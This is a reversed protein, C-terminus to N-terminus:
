PHRVHHCISRLGGASMTGSGASRRVTHYCECGMDKMGWKDCTLAGDAGLRRREIARRGGMMENVATTGRRSALQESPAAAVNEPLGSDALGKGAASPAPRHSPKWAVNWFNSTRLSSSVAHPCSWGVV